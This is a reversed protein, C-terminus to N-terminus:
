LIAKVYFKSGRSLGCFEENRRQNFSFNKLTAFDQLRPLLQWKLLSLKARLDSGRLVEVVFFNFYCTQLSKGLKLWHPIPYLSTSNQVLFSKLNEFKWIHNAPSFCFMKIDYGHKCVRMCVRREALWLMSVVTTIKYIVDYHM